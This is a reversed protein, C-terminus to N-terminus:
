QFTLCNRQIHHNFEDVRFWEEVFRRRDIWTKKHYDEEKRQLSDINSKMEKMTNISRAYESSRLLDYLKSQKSTIGNNSRIQKATEIIFSRLLRALEVVMTPHVLLIDERKGILSNNSDKKTIGKATVIISFDTNHITKYRKAKDIDAKQVKDGMKRDWVIPPFIREGNEVVITQIVDAMEVGVIKPVLDDTPFANHLDDLLVIESATGRLESPISELTKQLKEAKTVLEKNDCEIRDLKLKYETENQIHKTENDIIAQQVKEDIDRTNQSKIEEMEKNKEALEQKCKEEIAAKEDILKEAYESQIQKERLQIQQNVKTEVELHYGGVIEQIEKVHESKIKDIQAKTTKKVEDVTKKFEKCAHNFEEEGLMHNCTPCKFQVIEQTMTMGVCIFYM